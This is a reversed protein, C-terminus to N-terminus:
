EPPTVADVDRRYRLEVVGYAERETGDLVWGHREWFRRGRSNDRLVWLHQVPGAAVLLRAGIGQGWATPTVYLAHLERDDYAVFGLLPGGSAPEAVLM